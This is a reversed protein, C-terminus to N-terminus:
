AGDKTLRGTPLESAASMHGAGALGSLKLAGIMQFAQQNVQFKNHAMVAADRQAFEKALAALESPWQERAIVANCMGLSEATEATVRGGRLLLGKARKMGITMPMLLAGFQMSPIGKAAGTFHFAAGQQMVCLDACIAIHNGLGASAGNVAAIVVKPISIIRTMLETAPELAAPREAAPLANMVKLDVGSCFAEGAGTLFIARVAPDYHCDLLHRNALMLEDPGLANRVRPRNFQLTVIGPADDHDIRLVTSDTHKMTTLHARALQSEVAGRSCHEHDRRVREYVDIFAAVGGARARQASSALRPV